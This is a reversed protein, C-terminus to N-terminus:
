LQEESTHLFIISKEINRKHGVVKTFESIQCPKESEM